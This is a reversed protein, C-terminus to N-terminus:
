KGLKLKRLLWNVNIGIEEFATEWKEAQQIIQTHPPFQDNTAIIV